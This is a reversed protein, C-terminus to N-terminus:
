PAHWVQIYFGTENAMDGRNAAVPSGTLAIVQAVIQPAGQESSGLPITVVVGRRAGFFMFTQRDLVEWGGEAFLTMLQRKFSDAEMDGQTSAFAIRGSPYAQLVRVARTRAEASISRAPPGVNNITHAVQGGSQNISTITVPAVSIAAARGFEGLISDAVHPTPIGRARHAVKMSSLREVTYSVEDDDVVRHHALCLLILNDYGHRELESQQPDYRPGDPSAAKIHCIDAVVVGSTTDILKAVCKPFACQNGSEAFMRKITGLSFRSM